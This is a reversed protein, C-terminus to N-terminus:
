AARASSYYVSSTLYQMYKREEPPTQGYLMYCQTMDLCPLDTSPSSSRFSVQIRVRTSRICKQIFQPCLLIHLMNIDDNINCKNM